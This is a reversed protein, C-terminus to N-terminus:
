QWAGGGVEAVIAGGVPSGAQAGGRSLEALLSGAVRGGVGARLLAAGASTAAGVRLPPPAAGLPGRLPRRTGQTAHRLRADRAQEQVRSLVALAPSSPQPLSSASARHPSALLATAAVPSEPAQAKSGGRGLLREETADEEDDILEFEGDSESEDGSLEVGCRDVFLVEGMNDPEGSSTSAAVRLANERAAKLGKRGKKVRRRQEQARTDAAAAKAKEQADGAMALLAALEKEAREDEARLAALRHAMRRAEDEKARRQTQARRLSQSGSGSKSGSKAAGQKAQARAAKDRECREVRRRRREKEAAAAAAAARTGAAPGSRVDRSAAAAGSSAGM